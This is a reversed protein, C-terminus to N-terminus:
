AKMGHFSEVASDLFRILGPDGVTPAREWDIAESAPWLRRVSKHYPIERPHRFSFVISCFSGILIQTVKANPPFDRLTPNRFIDSYRLFALTVHRLYTFKENVGNYKVAFVKWYPPLTENEMIYTRDEEGIALKERPGMHEATVSIIGLLASISEAEGPTIEKKNGQMLDVLCPKTKNEIRSIWGNNCTACVKRKKQVGLSGQRLGPILPDNRASFRGTRVAHHTVKEPNYANLWDPFVHQKTLNGVNGCFICQGPEIRRRRAEGM